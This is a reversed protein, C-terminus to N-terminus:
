IHLITYDVNLCQIGSSIRIVKKLYRKVLEGMETVGWQKGRAVVLIDKSEILEIKKKIGCTLSTMSNTKKQCMKKQIPWFTQKPKEMLHYLFVQVFKKALGNGLIIIGELDM